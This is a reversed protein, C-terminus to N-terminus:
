IAELAAEVRDTNVAFPIGELVVINGGRNLKEVIFKASKRGFVENGGEISLDAVPSLFGWDCNVACIGNQRAAQSPGDSVGCVNPETSCV